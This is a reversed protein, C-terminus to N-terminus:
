KKMLRETRWLPVDVDFYLKYSVKSRPDTVEMVDYSHGERGILSQRDVRFGLVGTLLIYEEGVSIVQMATEPSKGDGSDLISRVLGNAVWRHDQAKQANGKQRYALFSVLHAEIDVYCNALLTQAHGLAADSEKGQLATRMADRADEVGPASRLFQDSEAYAARLERFDIAPDLAKVRGFLSEYPERAAGQTWRTPASHPTTPAAAGEKEAAAAVGMTLLLGALIAILELNAHSGTHLRSWRAGIIWRSPFPHCLM